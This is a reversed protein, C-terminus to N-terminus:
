VVPNFTIKLLYIHFDHRFDTNLWQHMAVSQKQCVEVPCLANKKREFFRIKSICVELHHSKKTEEKSNLNLGIRLLFFDIRKVIKNNENEIHKM